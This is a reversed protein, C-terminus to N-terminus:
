HAQHESREDRKRVVFTSNTKRILRGLVPGLDHPEVHREVIEGRTGSVLLEALEENTYYSVVPAGINNWYGGLSVRGAVVRSVAKKTYFVADMARSPYFVPELVVLHGGPRLLSFTNEVAQGVLERCEARTRGILHHLVAAVVAFDFRRDISGVFGPDFISGCYTDCGVRARAKQLCKESVDLGCVDKVDTVDRLFELTNGTGCGVDILSARTSGYRNIAEVVHKLRGVSYEPVHSDFYDMTGVDNVTQTM